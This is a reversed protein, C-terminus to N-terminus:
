ILSCCLRNRLLAFSINSGGRCINNSKDKNHSCNKTTFWFSVYVQVHWSIFRHFFSRVKGFLLLFYNSITKSYWFVKKIFYIFIFIINNYNNNYNNKDFTFVLVTSVTSFVTSTTCYKVRIMRIHFWIHICISIWVVLIM